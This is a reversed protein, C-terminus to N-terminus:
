AGGAPVAREPWHQKVYRPGEDLVAQILPTPAGRWLIAIEISEFGPLPLLRVNRDRIVGPMDVSVGIGYGNAVYRTILELSSAEIAVPWDIKLRKLNRQFIRSAIEAAPLSILPEDVLGRDWLERAAKIKASRPVLLVLPVRLLRLFNLKAPPRSELPTIALDIERDILWSEMEPQFGSRLSLRLKPERERLRNIVAPLHDRLVLESAGIRLHPATRRGIREKIGDLQDFFPAVFAQLEEGAPTLKFPMREFLKVGLDQELLLIQSSVAPQQIGYPMHRVARSIGGHRAVYHFLELHHINM